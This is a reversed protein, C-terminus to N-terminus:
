LNWCRCATVAKCHVYSIVAWSRTPRLGEVKRQWSCSVVVAGHAGCLWGACRRTWHQARRHCATHNRDWKAHWHRACSADSTAWVSQMQWPREDPRRDVPLGPIPLLVSTRPPYRLHISHSVLFRSLDLTNVRILGFLILWSKLLRPHKRFVHVVRINQSLASLVADAASLSGGVICVTRQGSQDSAAAVTSCGNTGSCALECLTLQFLYM